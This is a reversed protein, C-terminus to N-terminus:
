ETEKLIIKIYKQAEKPHQEAFQVLGMEYRGIIVDKTHLELEASDIKRELEKIKESQERTSKSSMYGISFVFISALVFSLGNIFKM